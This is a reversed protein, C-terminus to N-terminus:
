SQPSNEDMEEREEQTEWRLLAELQERAYGPIRDCASPIGAADANLLAQLNLRFAEFRQEEETLRLDEEHIAEMRAEVAQMAKSREADLVRLEAIIQGAADLVPWGDHCGAREIIERIAQAVEPPVQSLATEPSM